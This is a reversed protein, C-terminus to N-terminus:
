KQKSFTKILKRSIDKSEGSKYQVQKKSIQKLLCNHLHQFINMYNLQVKIKMNSLQIINVRRYVFIGYQDQKKIFYLNFDFNNNGSKIKKNKSFKPFCNTKIFLEINEIQIAFLSYDYEYSRPCIAVNDMLVIFFYSPM